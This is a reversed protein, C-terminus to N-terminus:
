SPAVILHGVTALVRVTTLRGIVGQFDVGEAAFRRAIESDEAFVFWDRASESDLLEGIEFWRRLVELHSAGAFDIFGETPKGLEAARITLRQHFDAAERANAFTALIEDVPFGLGILGVLIQDRQRRASEGEEDDIFGHDRDEVDSYKETEDLEPEVEDPVFRDDALRSDDNVLPATFSARWRGDIMMLTVYHDSCEWLVIRAAHTNWAPRSYLPDVFRSWVGNMRTLRVLDNNTEVVILGRNLVDLLADKADIFDYYDTTTHEAEDSDVDDPDDWGDGDEFDPPIINGYRDRWVGQYEDESDM